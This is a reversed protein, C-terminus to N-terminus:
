DPSYGRGSKGRRSTEPFYGVVARESILEEVEGKVDRDVALTQDLQPYLSCFRAMVVGFLVSEVLGYVRLGPVRTGFVVAAWGGM